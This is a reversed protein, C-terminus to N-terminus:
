RPLFLFFIAAEDLSVATEDKGVLLGAALTPIDQLYESAIWEALNLNTCYRYASPSVKCTSSSSFHPQDPALSFLMGAALLLLAALRRTKEPRPWILFFSLVVGSRATQCPSFAVGAAMWPFCLFFFKKRKKEKRIGEGGDFLMQVRWEDWRSEGRVLACGRGLEITQKGDTKVVELEGM